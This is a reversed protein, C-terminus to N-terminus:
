LRIKVQLDLRRLQQSVCKLWANTDIYSYHSTMKIVEQIRIVFEHEFPPPSTVLDYYRERFEYKYKCNIEM